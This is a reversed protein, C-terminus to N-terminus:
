MYFLLFAWGILAVGATIRVIQAAPAIKECLVYITLIAIWWLNMVGVAFLILMLGWCCGTCFAGQRLGMKFAGVWRDQWEKMLLDLPSRCRRLCANKAPSFQYAGAAFLIAASAFPSVSVMQPSLIAAQHLKWQLFTCIVSFLTWVVLYGTILGSSPAQARGQARRNANLRALIIVTPFITPLMMAAMMEAWMLFLGSFEAWAWSQADPGGIHIGFCACHGSLDMARAERIMYAWGALTLLVLAGAAFLDRRALRAPSLLENTM